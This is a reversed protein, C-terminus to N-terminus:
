SRNSNHLAMRTLLHEAQKWWKDADEHDEPLPEYPAGGLRELWAILAPNPQHREAGEHLAAVTVARAAITLKVPMFLLPALIRSGNQNQAGGPMAANPPISILPHGVALCPEGHDEFYSNADARISRLADLMAEQTDWDAKAQEEDPM